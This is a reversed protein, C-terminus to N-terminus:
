RRLPPASRSTIRLGPVAPTSTASRLKLTVHNTEAPNAALRTVDFLAPDMTSGLYPAASEPVVYVDTGTNFTQFRGAAGTRHASTM